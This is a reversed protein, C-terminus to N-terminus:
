EDPLGALANINFEESDSSNEANFNNVNINEEEESDNGLSLDVVNFNNEKNDRIDIDFNIGPQKSKKINVNRENDREARLDLSILKDSKIKNSKYTSSLMYSSAISMFIKSIFPLLLSMLTPKNIQDLPVNKPTIYETINEVIIRKLEIEENLMKEIGIDKGLFQKIGFDILKVIRDLSKAAKEHSESEVQIVKRRVYFTIMYEPKLKLAELEDPSLKDVRNKETEMLRDKFINTLYIQKSKDLNKLINSVDKSRGSRAAHELSNEIQIDDEEDGKEKFDVVLEKIKNSM